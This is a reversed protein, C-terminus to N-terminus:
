FTDLEAELHGEVVVEVTSHKEAFGEERVQKAHM